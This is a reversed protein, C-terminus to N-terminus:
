QSLISFLKQFGNKLFDLGNMFEKKTEEWRNEPINEFEDLKQNLEDRLNVLHVVKQNFEAKIKEDVGNSRQKLEDIRNSIDKIIDEAYIRYEEKNMSNM